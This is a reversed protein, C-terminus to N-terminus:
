NKQDLFFMLDSIFDDDQTSTNNTPKTIKQLATVNEAPLLPETENNYEEPSFNFSESANDNELSLNINTIQNQFFNINIINKTNNMSSNNTYSSSSSSIEKQTEQDLDTEDRKRKKNGHEKSNHISLLYKTRVHINCKACPLWDKKSLVHNDIIHKLLQQNINQNDEDNCFYHIAYIHGTIGTTRSSTKTCFPCHYMKGVHTAQRVHMGFKDGAITKKCISCSYNEDKKNKKNTTKTDNPNEIKKAHNEKFHEAFEKLSYEKDSEKCHACKIKPPFCIPCEQMEETSEKSSSCQNMAPMNTQIFSTTITILAVTYYATIISKKM